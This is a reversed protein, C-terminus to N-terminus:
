ILVLRVCFSFMSVMGPPLVLTPSDKGPDNEVLQGLQLTSTSVQVDRSIPASVRDDLCGRRVTMSHVDEDHSLREATAGSTPNSNLPRIDGAAPGVVANKGISMNYSRDHYFLQEIGSVGMLVPISYPYNQQSSSVWWASRCRVQFVDFIANVVACLYLQGIGVCYSLSARTERPPSLCVCSCM